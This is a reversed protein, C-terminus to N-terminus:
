RWEGHIQFGAWYYPSRWPSKESMWRQTVALAEAPPKHDVLISRYFREM